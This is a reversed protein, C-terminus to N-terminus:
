SRRWWLCAERCVIPAGASSDDRVTAQPRRTSLRSCWEHGSDLCMEVAVAMSGGFCMLVAAVVVSGFVCTGVSSPRAPLATAAAVPRRTSLRSCLTQRMCVVLCTSVCLACVAVTAGCADVPVSVDVRSDLCLSPRSQALPPPPLTPNSHRHRHSNRRHRQRRCRCHSRM